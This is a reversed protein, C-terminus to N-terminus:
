PPPASFLSAVAADHAADLEAADGGTLLEVQLGRWLALLQVTARRAAPQPWGHAVFAEQVGAPWHRHLVELQAPHEGPDRVAATLVDFFLRLYPLNAPQRLRRWGARLLAELPDEGYLSPILGALEPFRLYARQVAETLLEDKSGFYYLLMRNNSGIARALASLSLGVLGRELVVDVAADLLRHAEPSREASM